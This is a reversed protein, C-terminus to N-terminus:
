SHKNKAAAEPAYSHISPFQSHRNAQNDPAHQRTDSETKAGNIKKDCTYCRAATLPQLPVFLQLGNHCSSAGACPAQTEWAHSFWVPLASDCNGKRRKWGNWCVAELFSFLVRSSFLWTLCARGRILSFDKLLRTKTWDRKAALLM